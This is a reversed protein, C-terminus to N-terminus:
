GDDLRLGPSLVEAAPQPRGDAQVREVLVWEDEAAVAVGGDAREGVTGAAEDTAEGTRSAKLVPLV